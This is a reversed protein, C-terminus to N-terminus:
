SEKKKRHYPDSIYSSAENAPASDPATAMAEKYAKVAEGHDNKLDYTQGLRLWSMVATNLNLTPADKTAQKLDVLAKDFDGYWFFLNGRLYATQGAPLTSYGPAGARRLQDVKALEQLAASENGLDSYMQVEELRLLYNGPFRNAAQKLLPLALRPHHERRYIVALIIEADYKNLTGYRAVEQLQRIGDQKDGHFGGVVGILRMYFPLSGVVYEYLGVILRADVFQPDIALVQKNAKNAAAAERLSDTWAKEVLFSYNASLGHAVGSAYLAHVDRPDKELAADSLKLSRDICDAFEKRAQPTIALKPNRLFPNSGSVIESELAGDRFLEHYLIVQALHNYSDPDDPHAKLNARFYAYAKAYENNYFDVFGPITLPDRPQYASAFGTSAILLLSFLRIM